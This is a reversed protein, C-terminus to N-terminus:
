ALKRFADALICVVTGVDAIQAFLIRLVNSVKSRANKLAKACLGLPEFKRLQSPNLPAGGFRSIEVSRLITVRPGGSCPSGGPTATALGDLVLRGLMEVRFGHALMIAETCGLPSGALLRLARDQEAGRDGRRPSVAM